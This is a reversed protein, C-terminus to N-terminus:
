WLNDLCYRWFINDDLQSVKTLLSYLLLYILYILILVFLFKVKYVFLMIANVVVFFTAVGCVIPVVRLPTKDHICYSKFFTLLGKKLIEKM